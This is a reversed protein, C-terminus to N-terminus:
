HRWRKTTHASTERSTVPCTSLPSSSLSSSSPSPLPSSSLSAFINSITFVDLKLKIIISLQFHVPNSSCLCTLALTDIKSMMILQLSDCYYRCIPCNAGLLSLIDARKPYMALRFIMTGGQLLFLLLRPFNFSKPPIDRADFFLLIPQTM